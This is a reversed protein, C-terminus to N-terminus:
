GDQDADRCDPEHRIRVALALASPNVLGKASAAGVATTPVIKDDAWQLLMALDDASSHDIQQWRQAATARDTTWCHDHLSILGAVALLTKRAIRRGLVAADDGLDLAEARRRVHRDIDGNFGRAARVDGPFDPLSARGNPGHVLVCYHRLFVRNGYGEDLDGLYDEPEATAVEVVPELQAPVRERRAGTVIMGSASLREIVDRVASREVARDDTLLLRRAAGLGYVGRDLRRPVSGDAVVIASIELRRGIRCAM